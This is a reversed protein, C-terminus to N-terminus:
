ISMDILPTYGSSEGNEGLTQMRFFHTCGFEAISQFFFHQLSPSATGAVFSCLVVHLRKKISSKKKFFVQEEISYKNLGQNISKPLLESPWFFTNSSSGLLLSAALIASCALFITSPCYDYTQSTPKWYMKQYALTMTQLRVGIEGINGNGAKTRRDAQM